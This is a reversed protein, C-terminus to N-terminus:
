NGAECTDMNQKKQVDLMSQRTVYGLQGSNQQANDQEHRALHLRGHLSVHASNKQIIRIGLYRVNGRLIVVLVTYLVMGEANRNV